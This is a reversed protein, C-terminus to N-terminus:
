NRPERAGVAPHHDVEGEHSADVDVHLCLDCTNLATREEAVDVPLRLDEAEGCREPGDRLCADGPEREPAAVSPETSFVTERAVVDEGGLDGAGVTLHTRCRRLLVRIEEPRKAAASPVEADDRREGEPQVLDARDDSERSEEIRERVGRGHETSKALVGIGCGVLHSGFGDEGRARHRGIWVQWLRHV